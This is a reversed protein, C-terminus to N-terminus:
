LMFSVQLRAWINTYGTGLQRITARPSTRAVIQIPMGAIAGVFADFAEKGNIVGSECCEFQLVGSKTLKNGAEIGIEGRSSSIYVISAM